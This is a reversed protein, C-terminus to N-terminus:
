FGVCIYNVVRTDTAPGTITFSSATVNIVSLLATAAATQAAVTCVYDATATFAPSIGSITVASPTGTVLPASGFVIKPNNEVTHGCSSTTGCFQVSQDVPAPLDGAAIARFAPSTGTAFLAHTTTTDAAITSSAQLGGGIVVANSTLAAASTVCTACAILGAASITVPATATEAGGGSSTVCTACGIAGGASITAPSTGTLGSTGINGIPIALPLDATAIASYTGIGATASAHLVQTTTTSTNTTAGLFSFSGNNFSCKILHSTDGYCVDNGASASPPTATEVFTLNNLTLATDADGFNSLQAFTPISGLFLLLLTIIVSKLKYM